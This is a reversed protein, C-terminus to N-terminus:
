IMIKSYTARQLTYPLTKPFLSQLGPHTINMIREGQEAGEYRQKQQQQAQIRQRSSKARVLAKRLQSNLQLCGLLRRVFRRDDFQAPTNQCNSWVIGVSPIRKGPCLEFTIVQITQLLRQSCPLLRDTMWRRGDFVQAAIKGVSPLIIWIGLPM